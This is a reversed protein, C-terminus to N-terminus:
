GPAHRRRCTGAPFASVDLNAGFAQRLETSTPASDYAFAGLMTGVIECFLFLIM